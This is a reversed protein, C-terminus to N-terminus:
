VHFHSLFLRRLNRAWQRGLPEDPHELRVHVREGVFLPV